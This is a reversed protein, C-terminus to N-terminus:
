VCRERSVGCVLQLESDENVCKTLVKGMSGSYGNIIVRLM